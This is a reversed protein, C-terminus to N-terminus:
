IRIFSQSTRFIELFEYRIVGGRSEPHVDLCSYRKIISRDVCKKLIIIIIIIIGKRAGVPAHPMSSVERKVETEKDLVTPLVWEVFSWTMALGRGVCSLVPMSYVYVYVYVVM